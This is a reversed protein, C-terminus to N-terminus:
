IWRRVSSRYTGWAQGFRKELMREEVRIFSRDLAYGLAAVALFSSLSGALVALGLVMLVMGLYMPHRSLGFIGDTILVNSEEFPKVTTEAKRFARDAILNLLIGCALPFCGLLSWPGPIIRVVPVLVHLAALIVISALLYTPPLLTSNRGGSGSTM